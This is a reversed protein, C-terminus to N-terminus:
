GMGECGVGQWRQQHTQHHDECERLCLSGLCWDNKPPQFEANLTLGDTEALIKKPPNGALTDWCTQSFAQPVRQYNSM